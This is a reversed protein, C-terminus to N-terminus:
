PHLRPLRSTNSRTEGSEHVCRADSAVSARHYGRRDTTWGLTGCNTLGVSMEFGGPTVMHRFPAVSQIMDLAPLLRDVFPLAAGYLVFSEAGLPEVAMTENDSEFLDSTM